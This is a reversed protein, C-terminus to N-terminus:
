GGEEEFVRDFEEKCAELNDDAVLTIPEGSKFKGADRKPTIEFTLKRDKHAVLKITMDQVDCPIRWHNPLAPNGHGCFPNRCGFHLCGDREGLFAMHEQAYAPNVSAM